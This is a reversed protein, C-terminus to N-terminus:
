NTDPQLPPTLQPRAKMFLERGEATQWAAKMQAKKSQARQEAGCQPCGRGKRFQASYQSFVGHTPCKCGEIRVLAGTYVAESFDYRNLVEAPFKAKVAAFDAPKNERANQRMVKRMTTLGKETYTRGPKAVGRQTESIKRRTEADRQKGLWPYVPNAKKTASIKAKTEETHKKGFRPHKSPDVYLQKMTERIKERTAADVSPPQMTSMATNYCREQGANQMLYIDEIRLVDADPVEEVIEFEFADQGYENWATQLRMCHHTGKKLSAIHEWRRRRFNVASGIYFQETVVNLIRYIVAM